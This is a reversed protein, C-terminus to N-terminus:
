LSFPEPLGAAGVESTERLSKAGGRPAASTVRSEPDSPEDRNDEAVRSRERSAGVSPVSAVSRSRGLTGRVGEAMTISAMASPLTGRSVDQKDEVLVLPGREMGSRSSAEDHM